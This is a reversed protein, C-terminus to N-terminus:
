GNEGAVVRSFVQDLNEQAELRDVEYGWPQGERGGWPVLYDFDLQMMLTLSAVYSDRDSEKLVVAQWEGDRVWVTDGSFLFRHQGNDWLFMTAGPTHGPTPIVELDDAIKERRSFKGAIPLDTQSRDKEHIFIPVDMDPADYMGEHWHNILMREPRGRELIDESAANIGPSHYILINGQERELLFSRVLIGDLFPLPAAPTAHLGQVPSELGQRTTSPITDTTM